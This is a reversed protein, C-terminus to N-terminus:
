EVVMTFINVFTPVAFGDEYIKGLFYVTSQGGEPSIGIPGYRVIDLKQVQEGTEEFVQITLTSEDTRNSFQAAVGEVNGLSNLPDKKSFDNDESLNAYNGLLESVGSESRSRQLPPLYKFNPLNSLRKDNFFSDVDDVSSKPPEGSFPFRDTITYTYSTPIVSLGQDNLFKNRTSLIQLNQFSELSAKTIEEVPSTVTGLSGSLITKGDPTLSFSDGSFGLLMGSEDSEVTVTDWPTSFCEVNISASSYVAIDSSDGLYAAGSDSLTVYRVKLGGAMAQSRGSLTLIADIVRSKDDLFGSM